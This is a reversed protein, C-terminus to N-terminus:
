NPPTSLAPKCPDLTMRSPRVAVQTQERRPTLGAARPTRAPPACDAGATAEHSTTPPGAGIASYSTTMTTWSRTPSASTSTRTAETSAGPLAPRSITLVPNPTTDLRHLWRALRAGNTDPGFRLFTGDVSDVDWSAVRDIRKWSNVRGVHVWKGRLQAERAVDRAESSTKWDTDGGILVRGLM